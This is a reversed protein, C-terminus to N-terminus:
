YCYNPYDIEKGLYEKTAVLWLKGAMGCYGDYFRSLKKDSYHRKLENFYSDFFYKKIEEEDEKIPINEIITKISVIMTDIKKYHYKTLDMRQGIDTLVNWYLFVKTSKENFLELHGDSTTNGLITFSNDENIHFIALGYPRKVDVNGIKIYDRIYLAVESMLLPGLLADKENKLIKIYVTKNQISQDKLTTLIRKYYDQKLLNKHIVMQMIRADVPVVEVNEKKIIKEM